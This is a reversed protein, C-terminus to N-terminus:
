QVEEELISLLKKIDDLSLDNTNILPSSEMMGDDDNSTSKFESLMKEVTDVPIEMTEALTFKMFAESNAMKQNNLIADIITVIQASYNARSELERNKQEQISSNLSNFKIYYPRDVSPFVKGYKYACHIDILRHVAEDCGHRIWDSREAAAISTQQWGGEGLGGAMQDAWGIMTADVGASSALQRLHFMVDEIGTIDAPISQTDISIGGKGGGMVPIVSNVVTPMANGSLMRKEIEVANRKLGQTVERTYKAAQAPDLTDTTLAVLRDIKAANNRTAKLAKLSDCLDIFPQYSHELLSAGYNQTEIMPADDPDSLLNYASSGYLMPRLEYKPMWNPLRMPVLDWPKALVRQHTVPDLLYEGTFGALQGACTFENVFHPLTYFNSEISTIGINKKAFPRMYAVGFTAMILAWNPISSNILPFLDNNIEKCLKITAADASSKAEVTVIERTKKNMSLANSIHINLTTSLSASNAMVSLIAYKSLRDDPLSGTFKMDDGVSSFTGDETSPYLSAIGSRAVISGSSGSIPIGQLDDTSSKTPM